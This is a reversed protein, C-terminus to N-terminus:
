CALTLTRVHRLVNSSQDGKRERVEREIEELTLSQEGTAIREQRLQWLRRGLETRPHFTEPFVNPFPVTGEIVVVYDMAYPYNGATVPRAAVPAVVIDRYGESVAVTGATTMTNM